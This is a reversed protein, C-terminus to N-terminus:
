EALWRAAARNIDDPILTARREQLQLLVCKLKVTMATKHTSESRLRHEFEGSKRGLELLASDLVIVDGAHLEHHFEAHCEVAVFAIQRRKIEAATLGWREMLEMMGDSVARFYHQINMHGLYDCDEPAVTRRVTERFIPM